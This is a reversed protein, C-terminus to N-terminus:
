SILELQLDSLPHAKCLLIYGGSAEEDSLASKAYKDMEYQGSFVKVKCIGCGGGVCACPVKVMQERAAQVVKCEKACLFSQNNINIRFM